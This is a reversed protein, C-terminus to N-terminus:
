EAKGGSAQAFPNNNQGSSLSLFGAPVKEPYRKKLYNNIINDNLWQIGFGGLTASFLVSFVIAINFIRNAKHHYDKRLAEPARKMFEAFPIEMRAALSRLTSSIQDKSWSVKHPHVIRGVLGKTETGIVEDYAAIFKDLPLDSKKQKIEEIAKSRLTPILPKNIRELVHSALDQGLHLLLIYGLTGFIEVFCREAFAKKKEEPTMENTQNRKPSNESIRAAGVVLRTIIATQLLYPLNTKNPSLKATIPFTNKFSQAITPL